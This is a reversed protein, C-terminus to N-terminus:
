FFFNILRTNRVSVVIKSDPHLNQIARILHQPIGKRAMEAWLKSRNVRRKFMTLLIAVMSWCDAQSYLTPVCKLICALSDTKELLQCESMLVAYM